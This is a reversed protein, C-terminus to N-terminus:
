KNLEKKLKIIMALVVLEAVFIIGVIVWVIASNWIRDLSEGFEFTEEGMEGCVCSKYYVAPSDATAKSKLFREDPVSRDYVHGRKEVIDSISADGCECVQLTFGENTCDPAVVVEKYSHIHEDPDPEPTPNPEPTPDPEPDPEPTPDPTPDPEPNDATVGAEWVQLYEFSCNTLPHSKTGMYGLFIDKGSLWDSTMGSDDTGYYLHTMPGIEVGDVFLYVMNTGDENIRNELRYVHRKAADIGHDSLKIGYNHFKDESVGIAIISKECKFIYPKGSINESDPALLIGGNSTTNKFTGESCWELVWPVDHFLAIGRDFELQVRYFVGNTVEGAIQTIKNSTIGNGGVSALMEGNVTEFRYSYLADSNRENAKIEVDATVSEIYIEGNQYCQETIDVGGMTVRVGEIRRDHILVKTRFSDGKVISLSDPSTLSVGRLESKVECLETSEPIFRSNHLMTTWVASTVNDMGLVGPHVRKDPFYYEFIGDTSPIGINFLDVWIAGFRDSIDKLEKNFEIPQPVKDKNTDRRTMMSFCYLESDPYRVTIKHIMIAYAEVVSTPEAYTYGDATKVILKDYDIGGESFLLDQYYSFDNTGLFVFIIDPVEGANEGTDDHLQVCRDIYGGVTGEREAFVASGSWSNNVLRRLGTIEELQVWWTDELYVGDWKGPTYHVASKRITSNTTDAAAGSSVNKYTSISDGLISYTKGELLRSSEKEDASADLSFLCVTPIIMALVLLM